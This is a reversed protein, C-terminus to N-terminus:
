EFEVEVLHPFYEEFEVFTIYIIRGDQKSYESHEKGAYVLPGKYVLPNRLPIKPQFLLYPDSWPGWPTLSTRGVIKGTTDLSHVALFCNLYNNFSVSIETPMDTFIPVLDKSEKSWKPDLSSLYEYEGIKGISDKKVRALYCYQIKDKQQSGYIYVYPDFSSPLVSVGFCPESESWFLGNNKQNLRKFILEPYDAVALGSGVVKFKFPWFLEPIIKVRIFFLYLKNQIFTGDMAWIRYAESNEEKQLPVLQRLKGLKDTLYDFEDFAQPANKSKCILGTNNPMDEINRRGSEDITGLFTDGFIWLSKQDPLTISFAGDQGIMKVRNKTFLPGLGKTNKIKPPKM